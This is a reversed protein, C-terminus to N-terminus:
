ARRLPLQADALKHAMYRVHESKPVLEVPAAVVAIFAAAYGPDQAIQEGHDRFFQRLAQSARSLLERATSIFEDKETVTAIATKIKKKM